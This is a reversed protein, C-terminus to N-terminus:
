KVKLLEHRSHDRGNSVKYFTQGHSEFVDEVEYSIDSWVSTREKEGVKKKRLIKVKDGKELNPYKRTFTSNRVTNIWVDLENKKKRADDPTMGTTSHVLKNNYTLVIEFVFDVWQVKDDKANEVRKYLSDKFTRIAREAVNAHSRTVIHTINKEKFYNKMAVTSLAPEDDTYLIKPHGDMKQFGELIASAINGEAKSKMPIVTMYKSFADIMIMGLKFDQNPLDNIFFLDAQYEYNHHPAIFSNFGKLQKKREVLEEFFDKVDNMTISKDKEKADKYTTQVSGFGSRDFYIKKLVDTKSTM